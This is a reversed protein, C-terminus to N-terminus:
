TRRYPEIVDRAEQAEQRSASVVAWNYPGWGALRDFFAAVFDKIGIPALSMFDRLFRFSATICPFPFSVGDLFPGIAKFCHVLSSM